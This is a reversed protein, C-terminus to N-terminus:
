IDETAKKDDKIASSQSSEISQEVHAALTLNAGKKSGQAEISCTGASGQSTCSRAQKKSCNMTCLAGLAWDVIETSKTDENTQKIPQFAAPIPALALFTFFCCHFQLPNPYSLVMLVFHGQAGLPRGQQALEWASYHSTIGRVANNPREARCSQPQGNGTCSEDFGGPGMSALARRFPRDAQMAVSGHDQHVAVISLALASYKEMVPLISEISSKGNAGADLPPLLRPWIAAADPECLGATPSASRQTCAFCAFYM